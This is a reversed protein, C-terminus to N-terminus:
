TKNNKQRLNTHPPKKLEVFSGGFLKLIMLGKVALVRNNIRQVTLRIISTLNLRIFLQYGSKQTVAYICKLSKRAFTRTFTTPVKDKNEVM